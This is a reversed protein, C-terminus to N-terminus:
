IVVENTLWCNAVFLVMNGAAVLRKDRGTRCRRHRHISESLRPNIVEGTWVCSANHVFFFSCLFLSYYLLSSLFLSLVVLFWGCRDISRFVFALPWSTANNWGQVLSFSGQRLINQTHTHSLSHSDYDLNKGVLFSKSMWKAVSPAFSSVFRMESTDCIVFQLYMRYKTRADLEMEPRWFRLFIRSSRPNWIWCELCGEEEGSMRNRMVKSKCRGRDYKINAKSREIYLANRFHLLDYICTFTKRKTYGIRNRLCFHM